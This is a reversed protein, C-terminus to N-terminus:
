INKWTKGSRIRSIQSQNIKFLGELEKSPIDSYKIKLAEELSLKAVNRANHGQKPPMRNRKYTDQNNNTHTGVYLHNPNVCLKNDCAHCVLMGEPINGTFLTYFLRHASWRKGRYHVQGYGARTSKTWVWCSETKDVSKLLRDEPIQM